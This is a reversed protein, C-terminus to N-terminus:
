KIDRVPRQLAGLVAVLAVAGGAIVFMWRASWEVAVGAAAMSFPMLGLASLMTVSSVRGM